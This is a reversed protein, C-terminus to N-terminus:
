FWLFLNRGIIITRQVFNENTGIAEFFVLEINQTGIQDLGDVLNISSVGDFVVQDPKEVFPLVKM